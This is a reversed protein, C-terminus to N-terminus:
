QFVPGLKRWKARGEVREQEAIRLDDETNVPIYGSGIVFLKVPYGDDIACQVVGCEVFLDQEYFNEIMEYPHPDCVIEDDQFGEEKGSALILAKM